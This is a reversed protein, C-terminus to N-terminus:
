RNSKLARRLAPEIADAMRVFGLDTPHTGDVTAEGDAGLLKSASVYFLKKEGAKVLRKHIEGLKANASSFRKRRAEVFNGDAYEVNEVMVIPTAPHAERLTRVLHEYREAVIEATMNPLPDLVYVAPDLEALLQAVEPESLANGSFGLNITPWDLYRGLIAPYAMGPRSACGGQLISTGYFVIPKVGPLRPIGRELAAGEPVGIKVEQVGNYLPLYLVYERRGPKLGKVLVKEEVTKAPRGNGVWHWRGQEKVYLDLGSVGTAPMHPMALADRRLTWRASITTADTVFRVCMGASDHALNWVNQRVQTEARAPLRDYFDKTDSWGKGEIALERADRWLLNTELNSAQGFAGCACLVLALALLTVYHNQRFSVEGFRSYRREILAPLVRIEKPFLAPRLGGSCPSGTKWFDRCIM